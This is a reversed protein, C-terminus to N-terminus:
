IVEKINLMNGCIAELVKEKELAFVVLIIEELIFNSKFIMQLIGSEDLIDFCEEM